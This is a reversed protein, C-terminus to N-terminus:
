RIYSFRTVGIVCEEKNYAHMGERHGLHLYMVGLLPCSLLLAVSSSSLYRVFSPDEVSSIFPANQM